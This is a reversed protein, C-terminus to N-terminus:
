ANILQPKGPQQPPVNDYNDVSFTRHRKWAEAVRDAYRLCIEKLDRATMGFKFEKHPIKIMVEAPTQQHGVQKLGRDGQSRDDIGEGGVYEKITNNWVVPELQKGEYGKNRIDHYSEVTEKMFGDFPGDVTRKAGPGMAKNVAYGRGYRIPTYQDTRKHGTSIIEGEYKSQQLNPHFSFTGTSGETILTGDKTENNVVLVGIPDREAVGMSLNMTLNKGTITIEEGTM